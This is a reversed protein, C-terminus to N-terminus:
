AMGETRVQAVRLVLENTRRRLRGEVGQEDFQGDGISSGSMPGVRPERGSVGVVVEDNSAVEEEDSGLQATLTLLEMAGNFGNKGSLGHKVVNQRWKLLAIICMAFTIATVVGASCPFLPVSVTTEFVDGDSDVVEVPINRQTCTRSIYIALEVDEGIGALYAASKQM